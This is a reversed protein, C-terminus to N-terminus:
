GAVNDTFAVCVVVAMRTEGKPLVVSHLGADLGALFVHTENEGAFRKVYAEGTNTQVVVIRGEKVPLQDDIIVTQRDWIIPHGSDGHVRVARWHKKIKLPPRHIDDAAGSAVWVPRSPNAASVIGVYPIEAAAGSRNVGAPTFDPLGRPPILEPDLGAL